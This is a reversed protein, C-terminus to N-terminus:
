GAGNIRGEAKIEVDDALTGTLAQRVNAQVDLSVLADNIAARADRHEELQGSLDAIQQTLSTVACDHKSFESSLRRRAEDLIGPGASKNESTKGFGFM